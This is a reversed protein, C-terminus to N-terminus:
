FYAFHIFYQKSTVIHLLEDLEYSSIVRVTTLAAQTFSKFYLIVSERMKSM